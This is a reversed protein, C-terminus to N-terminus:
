MVREKRINLKEELEIRHKENQHANWFLQASALVLKHLEEEDMALMDNYIKDLIENAM